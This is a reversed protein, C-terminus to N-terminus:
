ENGYTLIKMKADKAMPIKNAGHADFFDMANSGGTQKQTIRFNNQRFIRLDM